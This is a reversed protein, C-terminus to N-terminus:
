TGLDPVSFYLITAPEASPVFSLHNLHGTFRESKNGESGPLLRGRKLGGQLLLAYVALYDIRRMFDAHSAAQRDPKGHVVQFGYLGDAVPHLLARQYAYIARFVHVAPQYALRQRPCHAVAISPPSFFSYLQILSNLAPV